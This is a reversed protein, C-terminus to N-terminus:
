PAPTKRERGFGFLPIGTLCLGDRELTNRGWYICVWHPGEMVVMIVQQWVRGHWYGQVSDVLHQGDNHRNKGGSWKINSTDDKVKCKCRWVVGNGIYYRISSESDDDLCWNCMHKGANLDVLYTCALVKVLHTWTHVFFCGDFGDSISSGM